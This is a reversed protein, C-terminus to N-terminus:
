WNNGNRRKEALFKEFGEPGLRDYIYDLVLAENKIKKTQQELENIAKSVSGFEKIFIEVYSKYTQAAFGKWNPDIKALIRNLESYVQSVNAQADAYRKEAQTLNDIDARFRGM